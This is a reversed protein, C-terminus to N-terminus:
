VEINDILRVDGVKAAVLYYFGGTTAESVKDFEDKNRAEFYEVKIEPFQSLFILSELIAKGPTFFGSRINKRALVLAKYLNSALERQSENLYINRSSCALGTSERVIPCARVFTPIKFEKVLWRILYLQQMDKEGFYAYDPKIIDLLKKVVIAVGSFHNKRTKGCLDSILKLPPLIIEINGQPYIENEDPAFVYKVGNSKCIDLDKELTRPYKKFDEGPAFQLPNIFISVVTTKCDFNSAKILSIHGAHLAGLTPVFGIPRTSQELVNKIDNVHRVLTTM